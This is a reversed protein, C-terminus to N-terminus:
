DNIYGEEQLWSYMFFSYDEAEWEEDTIELEDIIEEELETLNINEALNNNDARKLLWLQIYEIINEETSNM